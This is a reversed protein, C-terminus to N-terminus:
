RARRRACGAVSPALLLRAQLGAHAHRLVQHGGPGGAWREAAPAPGGRARLTEGPRSPCVRAAPRADGLHHRRRGQVVRDGAGRRHGTRRKGDVQYPVNAEAVTVGEDMLTVHRFQDLGYQLLAKSESFCLTPTPSGWCSASSRAGTRPARRCWASSRRPLAPRDQHGHGLQVGASCSTPTRSSCPAGRRRHISRTSSRARRDEPVEREEHRLPRAPGHRRGHLLSRQRGPRQPHRLPHREHGVGRGEPEDERRVREVSGSDNEALAVAAGNASRLLLAYLLQEVTLM